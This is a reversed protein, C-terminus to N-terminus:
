TGSEPTNVIKITSRKCGLARNGKCSEQTPSAPYTTNNKKSHSKEPFGTNTQRKREHARGNWRMFPYFTYSLAGKTGERKSEGWSSVGEKVDKVSEEGGQSADGLNKNPLLKEALSAVRKM